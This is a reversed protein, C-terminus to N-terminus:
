QLVALIKVEMWAAGLLLLGDADAVVDDDDAVAAFAVDDIGVDEETPDEEEKITSLSFLLFPVLTSLGATKSSFSGEEEEEGGNDAEPADLAVAAVADEEEEEEEETILLDFGEFTSLAFRDKFLSYCCNDGDGGCYYNDIFSGVHSIPIIARNKASQCPFNKKVDRPTM